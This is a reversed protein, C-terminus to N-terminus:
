ASGKGRLRFLARRVTTTIQWLKPNQKITRKLATVRGMIAAAARGKATLPVLAQYVPEPDTWRGKYSFDGLGIDFTKFGDDILQDMLEAILIHMLSFKSGEDSTTSNIYLSYHDGATTGWATAAIQDGGMLAHAVFVPRPDGFSAATADRFFRRFYPEEFINTIGMENFRTRRQTLFAEHVQALTAADAVRVLRVTGMAEEMRRRSRMLDGRRKPALRHKIFPKPTDGIETRYFHSAGPAHPLQLLPNALGNWTVLLNDFSLLDIGGLLKSVSTFISLLARADPEFGPATIMWDANSTDSGLIHARRLGGSRRIGLPLLAVPRGDQRIIAIAVTVDAEAGAALLDRIWDFRQYPTTTGKTELARWSAEAAALTDFLTVDSQSVGHDLSNQSAVTATSM